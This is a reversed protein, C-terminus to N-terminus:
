CCFWGCLHEKEDRKELNGLNKCRGYIFLIGFSSISVYYINRKICTFSLYKCIHDNLHVYCSECLTFKPDKEGVGLVFNVSFDLKVHSSENEFTCNKLKNFLEQKMLKNKETDSYNERTVCIYTQTKEWIDNTISYEHTEKSRLCGCKCAHLANFFTSIGRSM